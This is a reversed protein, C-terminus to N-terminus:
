CGMSKASEHRALWSDTNDFAHRDKMQKQICQPSVAISLSRHNRQLSVHSGGPYTLCQLYCQLRALWKRPTASKASRGDM